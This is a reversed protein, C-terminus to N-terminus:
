KKLRDRQVESPTLATSLTSANIATPSPMETTVPLCGTMLAARMTRTPATAAATVIVIPWMM